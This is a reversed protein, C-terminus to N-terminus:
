LKYPARSYYCVYRPRSTLLILPPLVAVHCILPVPLLMNPPQPGSWFPRSIGLTHWKSLTGCEQGWPEWPKSHVLPRLMPNQLVTASMAWPWENSRHCKPTQNQNRSLCKLDPPNQKNKTQKVLAWNRYCFSSSPSIPAKQPHGEEPSVPTSRSEPVGHVTSLSGGWDWVM